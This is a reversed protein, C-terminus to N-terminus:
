ALRRLCVRKQVGAADADIGVQGTHLHLSDSDLMTAPPIAKAVGSFRLSLGGV